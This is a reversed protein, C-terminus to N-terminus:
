TRKPQKASPKAKKPHADINRLRVRLLRNDSALAHITDGDTVGVVHALIVTQPLQVSITAFLLLFALLPKM